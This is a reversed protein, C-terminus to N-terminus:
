LLQLFRDNLYIDVLTYSKNDNEFFMVNEQDM